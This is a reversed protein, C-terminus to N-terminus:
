KLDLDDKAPGNSNSKGNNGNPNWREFKEAAPGAFKPSNIHAPPVYANPTGTPNRSVARGYAPNAPIVDPSDVM